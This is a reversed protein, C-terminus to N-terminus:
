LSTRELRYGAGRITTLPIEYGANKFKKRINKIHVEIANSMQVDAFDFVHDYISQQDLVDGARHLFYEVIAFEKTTLPISEGSSTVLNRSTMDAKVGPTVEYETHAVLPQRRLLSRIRALLEDIEFPKKLYDDAGSDLGEITDGVTDKYTLMIVPTTISADRLQKCVSYGDLGPLLIDLIVLDYDGQNETLWFAAEEGDNLHTISYGEQELVKRISKALTENDEVIVIHM